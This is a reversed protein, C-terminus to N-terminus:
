GRLRFLLCDVVSGRLPKGMLHMFRRTGTASEVGIYAWARDNVCAISWLAECKDKDKDLTHYRGQKAGVTQFGLCYGIVWGSAAM